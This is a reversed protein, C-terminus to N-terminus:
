GLQRDAQVPVSGWDQTRQHASQPFALSTIEKLPNTQPADGRFLMFAWQLTLRMKTENEVARAHLRASLPAVVVNALVAGYLTTLVALSLAAPLSGIRNTSVDRLLLVLGSLTGILGFSPLIKAIFLLIQRSVEDRSIITALERQLITQIVDTRHLDVILTVARRVFPDALHTEQSELGRIGELRYLRTLRALEQIHDQAPRQRVTIMARIAFLLESLQDRTYSFCTVLASGGVILLASPLDFFEPRAFVAALLAILVTLPVALTRATLM